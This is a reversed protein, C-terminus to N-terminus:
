QRLASSDTALLGTLTMVLMIEAEWIVVLRDPDRYPLPRLLVADVISFTATNAGIGLGLTLIVLAAFAPKLALMRLSYRADQITTEILSVGRTDHREEKVQDLGGFELRARLEEDM